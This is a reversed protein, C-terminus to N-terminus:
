IDDVTQAAPLVIGACDVVEEMDRAFALMRFRVSNIMVAADRRRRTDDSREYEPMNDFIAQGAHRAIADTSDPPMDAAAALRDVFARHRAARDAREVPLPYSDLGNRHVTRLWDLLGRRPRGQAVRLEREAILLIDALCVAYAEWRTSELRARFEADGLSPPARFGARARFYSRVSSQAVRAATAILYDALEDASAIRPRPLLIRKLGGTVGGFGALYGYNEWLAGQMAELARKPAAPM